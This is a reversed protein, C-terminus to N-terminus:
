KRRKFVGKDPLPTSNDEEKMDHAVSFNLQESKVSVFVKDFHRQIDVQVSDEEFFDNQNLKEFFNIKYSKSMYFFVANLAISIIFLLIILSM